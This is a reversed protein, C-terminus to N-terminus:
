CHRFSRLQIIKFLFCTNLLVFFVPNELNIMCRSTSKATKNILLCFPQVKLSTGAIIVLDTSGFDSEIDNMIGYPLSDNFMVVDPKVYGDCNQCLPSIPDDNGKIKAM